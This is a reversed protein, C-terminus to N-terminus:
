YFQSYYWYTNGYEKSLVKAAEAKPRAVYTTNTGIYYRFRQMTSERVSYGEPVVNQNTNVMYILLAEEIHLPIDKYGYEKLRGADSVLAVLDKELLHLAMSYEFIEKNGPNNDLMNKVDASYNDLDYFFDQKVTLRASYYLDAPIKGSDKNSLFERYRVSWKHYFLSRALVDIYKGAVKDDDNMLSTIVLRKLVRPGQGTAIFAEYAWRYTENLYGLQYFIEGGFFPTVNDEVWDLILGNRGVQRYKFMSDSLRGTKLLCINTYFVTLPDTRKYNASIKIGREWRGHQVCADLKMITAVRRHNIVLRKLEPSAINILLLGSIFVIITQWNWGFKFHPKRPLKNWTIFGALVVPFYILLALGAKRTQINIPNLNQSIWVETLPIQYVNMWLLYPIAAAALLWMGVVPYGMINRSNHLEYIIFLILAFFSFGGTAAYLFLWLALGSFYRIYNNRLNIFIVVSFLSSILAVAYSITFYPDTQLYVLGIVPFLQPIISNINLKRFIYSSLYFVAFSGATVILAGLFPIYYFQILFIGIYDTLGGPRTLFDVLYRIDFLFLQIQEQYILSYRGITIFYLLHAIFFILIALLSPSLAKKLKEM